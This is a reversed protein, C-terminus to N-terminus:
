QLFDLKPFRQILRFLWLNINDFSRIHLMSVILPDSWESELDHIDKVKTKIEYNRRMNWSHTINVIEGSDYPGIWNSDTGDGWDFLFFIQDGNPDISSSSYYYDTNTKGDIIGVPRLPKEPRQDNPQYDVWSIYTGIFLGGYEINFFGDYGWEVGWSNKCIWYGGNDIGPDDKWGVIVIIHNLRNGWPENTDPYYDNENNNFSWYNIFDETVNIGAAIPGDQYILSKITDRAELSDFGLWTEGCDSYSLRDL